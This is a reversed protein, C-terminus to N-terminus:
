MVKFETKKRNQKETCNFKKEHTDYITGFKLKTYLVVEILYVQNLKTRFLTNKWSHPILFM